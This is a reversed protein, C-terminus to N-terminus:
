WGRQADEIAKKLLLLTPSDERWRKSDIVTQVAVLLDQRQLLLRLVIEPGVAGAFDYHENFGSSQAAAECTLKYLKEIKM